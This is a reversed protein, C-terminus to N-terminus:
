YRALGSIAARDAMFTLRRQCCCGLKVPKLWLERPVQGDKEWQAHFPTVEKEIFRRCTERFLEHESEFIPRDLPM